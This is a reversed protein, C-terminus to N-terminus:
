SNMEPRGVGALGYRGVHEDGEKREGGRGVDGHLAGGAGEPWSGGGLAAGPGEGVSEGHTVVRSHGSRGKKGLRGTFFWGLGEEEGNEKGAGRKV